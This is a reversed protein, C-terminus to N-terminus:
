SIGLAPARDCYARFEREFREWDFEINGGGPPEPPADPGRGPGRDDDDSDQDGDRLQQKAVRAFLEASAAAFWLSVAAFFVPIAVGTPKLGWVCLFTFAAAGVAFSM